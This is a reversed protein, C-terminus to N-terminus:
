KAKRAADRRRKWALLDARQYFNALGIKFPAPAKPDRQMHKRFSDVTPCGAVVHAEATPVVDSLSLTKM